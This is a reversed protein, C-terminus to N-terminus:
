KGLSFSPIRMEQPPDPEADWRRPWLCGLVTGFNMELVNGKERLVGEPLAFGGNRFVRTGLPVGNLTLELCAHSQDPILFKADTDACDFRTMLPMEGAFQPFGQALLDGARLEPMESVLYGDRDVSFSGAVPIIDLLYVLNVFHLRLGYKEGYWRSVPVTVTFENEGEKIYPHIPVSVNGDGFVKEPVCESVPVGNIVLDRFGDSDFQLRINEPMEGRVRFRGRLKAWPDVDPDFVFPAMCDDELPVYAGDHWAELSCRVANDPADAVQWTLDLAETIKKGDAYWPAAALPPLDAGAGATAEASGSEADEASGTDAEEPMEGFEVILSQGEELVYRGDEPAAYYVGDGPAFVRRQEPLRDKLVFRKAGPTINALFLAQWDGDERLASVVTDGGEISYDAPAAEELAALLREAFGEESWDLVTCPLLGEGVGPVEAAEKSAQKSAEKTPEKSAGPTDDHRVTRAPPDGVAILIGGNEAFESLKRLVLDDMVLCQPLIIARFASNPVLLSGDEAVTGDLVVDEFLIEFDRHGRVLADLVRLTAESCDAGPAFPTREERISTDPTIVSMSLKASTPNLVAVRTKLYGRAAFSSGQRVYESLLGYHKWYPQVTDPVCGYKRFDDLQYSVSNNLANIGMAFFFDYNTRRNSLPTSFGKIGACECLARHTSNYRAVAPGHKLSYILNRPWGPDAPCMEAHDSFCNEEYLYDTGPMQLYKQQFYLDGTMNVMFRQCVPEEPWGHGTMILGNEGCWRALQGTFGDSFRHGMFRWFDYRFQESGPAETVLRWLKDKYGYGYQAIFDEEMGPSWPLEGMYGPSVMTPEDYFFGKIVTGFYESFREKYKDYIEGMWCRVAAPNMTDLGGEQNWTGETGLNNFYICEILRKELVLLTVAHDRTNRYFLGSPGDEPMGNPFIVEPIGSDGDIGGPFTAGGDGDFVGCWYVEEYKGFDATEGPALTVWDQLLNVFRYEPHDRPIRGGATGSPWNLEDYIWFAMGRSKCAGITWGVLDFWEESLFDPDELGYNPYLFFELIGREAFSDLQREMEPRRMRGNWCWWPILGYYDDNPVSYRM